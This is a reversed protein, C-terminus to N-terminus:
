GERLKELAFWTRVSVAEKKGLFSLLIALETGELRLALKAQEESKPASESAVVSVM